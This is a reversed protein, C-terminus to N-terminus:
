NEEGTDDDRGKRNGPLFSKVGKILKALTAEHLLNSIATSHQDFAIDEREMLRDIIGTKNM